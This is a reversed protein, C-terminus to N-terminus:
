QGSVEEFSGNHVIAEVVPRRRRVRLVPLDASGNM